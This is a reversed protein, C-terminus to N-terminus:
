KYTDKMFIEKEVTSQLYSLNNISTGRSTAYTVRNFNNSSQFFQIREEYVEEKRFIFILFFMSILASISPSTLMAKWILSSSDFNAWFDNDDKLPLFLGFISCALFGVVTMLETLGILLGRYKAPSNEAIYIPWTVSAIGAFVGCLARAVLFAWTNQVLKLGSAAIVLVSNLILLRRKGMKMLIWVFPATITAFAPLLQTALVNWVHRDEPDFGYICPTMDWLTMLESTSVGINFTGLAIVTAWLFIYDSCM